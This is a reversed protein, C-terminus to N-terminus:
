TVAEIRMEKILNYEIKYIHRVNGELLIKGNLDRVTQKVDVAVINNGLENISFPEVVPDIEKWQRTWYEKVEKHGEVYGGEWGNPWHVDSAMLEIVANINRQNFATYAKKILSNISDNM